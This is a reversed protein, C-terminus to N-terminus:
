NAIYDYGSNLLMSELRSRDSESLQTSDLLARAKAYDRRAVQTIYGVLAQSRKGPDDISSILDIRSNDFKRTDSVLARIADDRTAGSPLGSVWRNAAVPDIQAWTGALAYVARTRNRPNDIAEMWAIAQQPNTQASYAVLQSYVNDRAKGPSMGSAIQIARAPDQRAIQPILTSYMQEYQPSNEYGAVFAEAAALSQHQALSQVIQLSVKNATQSDLRPLINIAAQPNQRVLMSSVSALLHNGFRDSNEIAWETAATADSQVWHMLMRQAAQDKNRGDPLQKLASVAAVPDSNAMTEIINSLTSAREAPNEIAQAAALATDPDSRSILVIAQQYMSHRGGTDERQAWELARGPDDTVLAQVISNGLAQRVQLNDTSNYYSMALDFDSQALQIIATSIGASFKQSQPDTLWRDLLQAPDSNGLARYVSQEYGARVQANNIMDVLSEALPPNARGLYDGLSWAAKRQEAVPLQNLYDIAAYPADAALSQLYQRKTGSSPPVGLVEEIHRTEENEALGYAGYMVQAAENRRSISGLGLAAELAGDLDRRAWTRWISSEILREASFPAQAAMAVASYPDIDTLRSFLISLGASRDSADAVRITQHILDQVGASDSRGALVYLAETQDFDSRLRLTEAVTTLSEFRQARHTASEVESMAPVRVIDRVIVQAIAPHESGSIERYLLFVATALAMGSIIGIILKNM